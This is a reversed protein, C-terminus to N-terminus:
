RPRKRDEFPLHNDWKAKREEATPEKLPRVIRFGVTVADTHYWISQPIQPDQEKWKITSGARAAARCNEPDADWSGGRVVRPYMTKPCALPNNLPEEKSPSYGSPTHQDLVWEAVNGHMDYLGWANPKKTGVKHYKEDANDYYWAYDELDDPDDGFHYATKAGARCAYEWEAETPLRYYRGTKESLWMCYIRCALQTMCIAPRGSKGMGFTMDSYPETPQTLQYEDAAKDRENAEIRKFKRRLIDMDFMWVEFEDWTIEHKGMWFPDIKVTRQPGEDKKRDEETAPSGMVFTGGRIPVMDFTVDAHEIVDTYPKMEAETDAVSDAVELIPPKSKEAAFSSCCLCVVLVAAAVL